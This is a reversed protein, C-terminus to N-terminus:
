RYQEFMMKLKKTDRGSESITTNETNKRIKKILNSRIGYLQSCFFIISLIENVLEKDPFIEEKDLVL